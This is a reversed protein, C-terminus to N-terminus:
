PWVKIPQALRLARIDESKILLEGKWGHLVRFGDALTEIALSYGQAEYFAKLEDLSV